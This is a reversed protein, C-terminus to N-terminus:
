ATGAVGEAAAGNRKRPAATTEKDANPNRALRESHGDDWGDRWAVFEESGTPFRESGSIDGGALASNYGDMNARVVALRKDPKMDIAPQPAVLATGFDGQGDDWTILGVVRKYQWDRAAEQRIEDSTMNRCRYNEKIGKAEVGRDGYRAFMTKIKQAIRAQQGMLQEYEVQCLKINEPDVNFQAAEASARKAM